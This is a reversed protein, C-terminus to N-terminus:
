QHIPRYRLVFGILIGRSVKTEEYNGSSVQEITLEGPIDELVEMAHNVSYSDVTGFLDITKQKFELKIMEVSDSFDIWSEAMVLRPVGLAAYIFLASYLIIRAIHVRSKIPMFWQRGNHHKRALKM